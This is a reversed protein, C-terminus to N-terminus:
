KTKMGQVNQQCALALERRLEGQKSRKVRVLDENCLVEDEARGVRCAELSTMTERLEARTERLEARTERLEAKLADM